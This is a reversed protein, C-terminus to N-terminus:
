LDKEFSVQIRNDDDVTVSVKVEHSHFEQLLYVGFNFKDAFKLVEEKTDYLMSM